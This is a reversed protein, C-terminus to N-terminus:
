RKSKAKRIGGAVVNGEDALDDSGVDISFSLFTEVGEACAM